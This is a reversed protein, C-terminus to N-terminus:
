GIDLNVTPRCDKMEEVAEERSASQGSKLSVPMVEAEPNEFLSWFVGFDGSEELDDMFKAMEYLYSESMRCLSLLSATYASFRDRVKFRYPILNFSVLRVARLLMALIRALQPALLMPQKHPFGHFPHQRMLQIYIPKLDFDDREAILIEVKETKECTINISPTTNSDISKQNVSDITTAQLTDISAERTSKRITRSDASEKKSPGLFRRKM